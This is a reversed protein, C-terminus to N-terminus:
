REGDVPRCHGCGHILSSSGEGAVAATTTLRLDVPGAGVRTVVEGCTGDPCDVLICRLGVGCDAPERDGASSVTDLAEATAIARLEGGSDGAVRDIRCDEPDIRAECRSACATDCSCRFHSSFFAEVSPTSSFGDQSKPHRPRRETRM